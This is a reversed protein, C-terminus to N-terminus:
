KKKNMGEKVLQKDDNIPCKSPELCRKLYQFYLTFLFTDSHKKFSPYCLDYLLLLQLRSQYKPFLSISISFLALLNSEKSNLVVPHISKTFNNLM